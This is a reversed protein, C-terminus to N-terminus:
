RDLVGLRLVLMSGTLAYARRKWVLPDLFRSSRPQGHFLDEAAAAQPDTSRRDYMASRVLTDAGIGEPLQPDPLALGVMRLAQDVRQQRGSQRHQIRGAVLRGLAVAAAPAPVRGPDPRAPHGKALHLVSRPQRGARIRRPPRRLECQRPEEPLRLLGRLRRAP